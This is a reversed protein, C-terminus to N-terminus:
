AKIRPPPSILPLKEMEVFGSIKIGDNINKPILANFSCKSWGLVNNDDLYFGAGAISEDTDSSVVEIGEGSIQIWAKLCFHIHM